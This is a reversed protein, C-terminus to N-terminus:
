SRPPSTPALLVQTRGVVLLFGRRAAEDQLSQLAQRGTTSNGQHLDLEALALEADLASFRLGMERSEDRALALTQRAEALRGRAAATRGSTIAVALRARRNQSAATLERARRIERDAAEYNGRALFVEALTEHARAEGDPLRRLSRFRELANRADSEADRTKGEDLSLQALALWGAAAQLQEDTELWLDLAASANRRADPLKGQLREVRALGARADALLLKHGGAKEALDEMEQFAAQAEDLRGEEILILSLQNLSSGLSRPHEIQRSLRVAQAAERHADPLRGLDLWTAALSTRAGAEGVINGIAHFRQLAQTLALRAERLKGQDRLASGLNTLGRGEGLRDHVQRSIKVVQQLLQQARVYDGEQLEIGGLNTLALVIGRQNGAERHLELARDYQKRAGAFDGRDRLLNAINHIAGAVGVKDGAASFISEAEEIRALAEEQRGLSRLAYGQLQLAQATLLRAGLTRGKDAAQVAVRQQREYDSLAAAAEAEALDIRPDDALPVPLRRLSAVTALARQARGASIQARALRLGHELDDPFFRWLSDYIDVATAWEKRTAAHLAEVLLRDERSLGASLELARTAEEVASTDHGLTSWAIALAAHALPYEPEAEIAQQLKDRAALTNLSRLHELGEAYRKVAEQSAPFAARTSAAETRSAPAAGLAQRLDRGLASVMEFLEGEDRTATVVYLTEGSATDQLRLDVRIRNDGATGLALYSGLLVVDCGLLSRLRGLTDASLNEPDKLGLDQKTRTVSEGTITHLKEGVGLEVTFMESLATSLWATDTRGSLNRFGLVAVSRRPVQATEQLGPPELLGTQRWPGLVFLLAAALGALTLVPGGPVLRRRAPTGGPAPGEAAPGAPEAVAAPVLEPVDEEESVPPAEPPPPPVDPLPAEAPPPASRERRRLEAVFSYGRGPVTVIFRHEGAEEGLAKRLRFVNQTLTAETIFADPWVTQFLEEKDVVQGNREVLVLLTALAKPPLPVAEGKRTLLRRAPDLVFDEFEYLVKEQQPMARPHPHEAVLRPPPPHFSM